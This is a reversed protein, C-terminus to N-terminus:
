GVVDSNLTSGFIVPKTGALANAPLVVSTITLPVLRRATVPVGVTFTPANTTGGPAITDLVGVSRVNRTGIPATVPSILTVVTAPVASLAVFRAPPWGGRAVANVGAAPGTPVVRVIAPVFRTPAVPTVNVPAAGTPGVFTVAVDNRTTTGSPANVPGTLIVSPTFVPTLAALKLTAGVIDPNVGALATPPLAPLAPSTSTLPTFRRAAVPAGTTFTPAITTGGPDIRDLVGVSRVNRTGIPATVPFILTVVTSPVATLAAFRVTTCGGRAVANVGAAPGTPVVRVIAPVFRTPAVPTVNVPAAGTPGVLPLAVDNRTTTGSPANVPGTLIVSPTFVPTLAALKLTAGVIDPNVGALATPPLAPLAPSTSTLPTFRRAAVPAGTTFTPA